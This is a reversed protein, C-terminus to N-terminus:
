GSRRYLGMREIYRAVAPPVRRRLARSAGHRRVQRRIETASIPVAVDRLFHIRNRNAGHPLARLGRELDFGPRSAVIIQCLRLLGRLNRWTRLYLFSDAGIIFYLQVRSGMQGRVRRVTEVSYIRRRGLGDPGAELLSPLYVPTRREHQRLAACALAVMAFRHPFPTLHSSRKHPPLGCPIFYLCDLDFRRGAARAVRLHGNHIPDFTGGFLGIRSIRTRKRM